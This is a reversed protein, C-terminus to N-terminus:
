GIGPRLCALHCKRKPASLFLRWLPPVCVQVVGGTNLAASAAAAWEFVRAGNSTSDLGRVEGTSYAAIITGFRFRDDFIVAGVVAAPGPAKWKLVGSGAYVAYVNNDGSGFYIIGDRHTVQDKLVGRTSMHWTKSGNSLELSYLMFDNCGVYVKDGVVLPQGTFSSKGTFSWLQAGTEANLAYVNRDDCGFLVMSVGSPIRKKEEETIGGPVFTVSTAIRASRKHAWLPKGSLIDLAKVDGENSTVFVKTGMSTPAASIRNGASVEWKPRGDPYIAHVKGTNTGVFIVTSMADKVPSGVVAGTTKFAWMQRGTNANIAVVKFDETAYIINDKFILPKATVKGPLNVKWATEAGQAKAGNPGPAAAAAAAAATAAAQNQALTEKQKKAREANERANKAIKAANAQRQRAQAASAAGRNIPQGRRDKTYVAATPLLLALWV